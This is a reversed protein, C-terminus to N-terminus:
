PQAEADPPQTETDPSPAEEAKPRRAEIQAILKELEPKLLAPYDDHVGGHLYRVVGEGIIVTHPLFQMLYQDSVTFDDLLCPLDIDNAEFFAKIDAPKEGCNVLVVEIDPEQERGWKALRQLAPLYDQNAPTWSAWFGLVILDADLHDKLAWDEGALNKLTFDPARKGILPHGGGSAAGGANAGGANGGSGPGPPAFQAVAQSGTTDFAFADDDIPQDITVDTIELTVTVGDGAPDGAELRMQELRKADDELTLTMMGTHTQAVLQPAADPADPGPLKPTAALASGESLVEIPNEAFLFVADPVPMANIVPWAEALKEYTLPTPQAVELHQGPFQGTRVRLTTGDAVLRFHPTDIALRSTPRDFAVFTKAEDIAEWRGERRVATFAVTSEYQQLERYAARVQDTLTGGPPAQAALRGAPLM